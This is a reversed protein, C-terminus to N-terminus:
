NLNQDPYDFWLCSAVLFAYGHGMVHNWDNDRTRNGDTISDRQFILKKENESNVKVIGNASVIHNFNSALIRTIAAKKLFERRSNIM